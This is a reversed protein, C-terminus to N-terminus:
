ASLSWGEVEEDEVSADAARAELGARGAVLLCELDVIEGVGEEDEGEEREEDVGGFRGFVWGADGPDAAAHM